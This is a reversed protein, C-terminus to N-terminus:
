KKRRRMKIKKLAGDVWQYLYTRYQYPRMPANFAAEANDHSAGINDRYEHWGYPLGAGCHYRGIVYTGNIDDM